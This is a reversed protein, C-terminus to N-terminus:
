TIVARGRPGLTPPVTDGGGLEAGGANRGSTSPRRATAIQATRSAWAPTPTAAPPNVPTSTNKTIEPKRMVWSSTRSSSRVPPMESVRKKAPRTLRSM